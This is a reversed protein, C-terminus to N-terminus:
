VWHLPNVVGCCCSGAKTRRLLEEERFYPSTTTTTTIIIILSMISACRDVYTIQHVGAGVSHQEEYIVRCFLRGNQSQMPWRSMTEQLLANILTSPQKSLSACLLDAPEPVLRNSRSGAYL